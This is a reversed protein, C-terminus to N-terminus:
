SDPCPAAGACYIYEHWLRLMHVDSLRLSFARCAGPQGMSCAKTLAVREAVEWEAKRHLSAFCAPSGFYPTKTAPGKAVVQLHHHPLATRLNPGAGEAAAVMGCWAAALTSAEAAPWRRRGKPAPITQQLHVMRYREKWGQGGSGAM